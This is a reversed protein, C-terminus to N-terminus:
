AAPREGVESTYDLTVELVKGHPGPRMAPIDRLAHDIVEPGYTREVRERGTRLVSGRIM